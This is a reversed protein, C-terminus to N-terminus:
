RGTVYALVVPLTLLASLTTVLVSMAVADEGRKLGRAVAFVTVGTPLASVLVLVDFALGGLGTARAVAATAAPMVALKTVASALTAGPNRALAQPSAVRLFLGLSFLAVGSAASALLDLPPLVDPLAFQPRAFAFALGLLSAVVLPNRAVTVLASRASGEAAVLLLIGAPLATLLYFAAVAAAYPIAEAGHVLFVLPFGIYAINGFAASFAVAGRTTTDARALAGAIWATALAAAVGVGAALYLRTDSFTALPARYLATFILAPFAIRVAFRNLADLDRADFLSTRAALWGLAVVSVIVAIPWVVDLM